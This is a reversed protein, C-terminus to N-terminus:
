CTLDTGKGLETETRDGKGEQLIFLTKNVKAFWGNPSPRSYKQWLLTLVTLTATATFMSITFDWFDPLPHSSSEVPFRVMCWALLRLKLM